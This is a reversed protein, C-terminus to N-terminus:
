NHTARFIKSFCSTNLFGRADTQIVARLNIGLRIASQELLNRVGWSRETLILPFEACEYLRLTKKKALPHTKNMICYVPQVINFLTQFDALKM